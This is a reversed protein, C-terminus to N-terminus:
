QPLRQSISQEPSDTILQSSPSHTLLGFIFTHSTLFSMQIPESLLLGTSYELLYADDTGGSISTQLRLVIFGYVPVFSLNHQKQEFFFYIWLDAINISLAENRVFSANSWYDSCPDGPSLTQSNM